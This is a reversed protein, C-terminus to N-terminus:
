PMCAKASESRAGDRWDEVKSPPTRLENRRNRRVATARDAAAWAAPGAPPEGALRREFVSLLLTLDVVYGLGIQASAAAYQTVAPNLLQIVYVLVMLAIAATIVFPWWRDARLCMWGFILLRTIDEAISIQYVGDVHWKYTMPSLLCYSLLIGAALREPRGGWVWAVAYAVLGFAIGGFQWPTM